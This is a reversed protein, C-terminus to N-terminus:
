DEIFTNNIRERLINKLMIEDTTSIALDKITKNVLKITMVGLSIMDMVSADECKMDIGNEINNNDFELKIM